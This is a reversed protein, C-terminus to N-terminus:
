QEDNENKGNLEVGLLHYHEKMEDIGYEKSLLINKVDLDLQKFYDNRCRFLSIQEITMTENIKAILNSLDDYKNKQIFTALKVYYSDLAECLCVNFNTTYWDNMIETKVKVYDSKFKRNFEMLENVETVDQSNKDFNIKVVINALRSTVFGFDYKQCFEDIIKKVNKIYNTRYDIIQKFAEFDYQKKVLEFQKNNFDDSDKKYRKNQRTAIIGIFLTAIGSIWAGVLSIINSKNEDPLLLLLFSCVFIITIIFWFWWKQYFYEEKM